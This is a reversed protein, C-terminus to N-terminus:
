DKRVFNVYRWQCMTSSASVLETDQFPMIPGRGGLNIAMGYELALRGALLTGGSSVLARKVLGRSWPLGILRLMEQDLSGKEFNDLYETWHVWELAKLSAPRVEHFQEEFATGKSLLLQHLLRYKLMPFSHGEDLGSIHYNPNFILPLGSM